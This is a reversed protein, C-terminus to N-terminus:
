AGLQLVPHGDATRVVVSAIARRTLSTAGSLRMTRGPLARWTAVQELRGGATRVFLAYTTPHPTGYEGGLPAYTCVVDLRTGWDVSTFSVTARVPANGVPVMTRPVAPDGTSPASPGTSPATSVPVPATPGATPTGDGTLASSAAVSVAAVAAVSAAALGATAWARRRRSRRVERVLAPLLTEPVPEPAPPALLVDEGVRGLLGPLGALERVSRACDTCGALHREFEQREAPSLAGLVYAGDDHAFDCSM